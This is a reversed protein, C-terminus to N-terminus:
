TARQERQRPAVVAAAADLTLPRAPRARKPSSRKCYPESARTALGQVKSQSEPGNRVLTCNLTPLAYPAGLAARARGDYYQAAPLKCVGIHRPVSRCPHPRQCAQYIKQGAGFHKPTDHGGRTLVSSAASIPRFARSTTPPCQQGFLRRCARTGAAVALLWGAGGGYPVPSGPEPLTATRAMRAM